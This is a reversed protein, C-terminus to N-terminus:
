ETLQKTRHITPLIPFTPVQYDGGGTLPYTTISDQIPRLTLVDKVSTDGAADPNFSKPVCKPDVSRKSLNADVMGLEVSHHADVSLM